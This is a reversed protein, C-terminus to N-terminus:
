WTEKGHGYKRAKKWLLWFGCWFGWIMMRKGKTSCLAWLETRCCLTRKGTGRHAWDRYCNDFAVEQKSTTTADSVAWPQSWVSVWMLECGVASGTPDRAGGCSAAWMGFVPSADFCIRHEFSCWTDSVKWPGVHLQLTGLQWTTLWKRNKEQLYTEVMDPFSILSSRKTRWYIFM